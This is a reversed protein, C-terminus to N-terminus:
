GCCRRTCNRSTRREAAKLAFWLPVLVVALVSLLFLWSLGTSM